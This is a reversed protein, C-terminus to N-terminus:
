DWNQVALKEQLLKLKKRQERYEPLYDEVILWFRPSHNHEWIHSLEHIVVYDIVDEDAMVLRWSFTISNKGSCSGWRTKASSIRVGSPKVRMQKSYNAVKAKLLKEAISKYLSVISLKIHEKAMNPPIFFCEYDFGIKNGDRAEIPYLKGCLLVMDGYDLEFLAKESVRQEIKSLHSEIWKQKSIVFKDIYDKPTKLPARVEVLAEKTIHIAITKRSSRILKYSIM